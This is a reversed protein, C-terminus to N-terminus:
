NVSMEEKGDLYETYLDMYEAYMLRRLYYRPKFEEKVVKISHPCAQTYMEPEDLAEELLLRISNYSKKEYAKLLVHIYKTGKYIQFVKKLFEDPLDM